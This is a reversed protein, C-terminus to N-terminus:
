SDAQRGILAPYDLSDDRKLPLCPFDRLLAAAAELLRGQPASEPGVLELGLSWGSFGAFALETVEILVPSRVKKGRLSAHSAAAPAMDYAKRHRKKLVVVRRGEGGQGAFARSLDTEEQGCAWSHREWQTEMGAVRGALASFPRREGRLKLQIRDKRFKLGVDDRGPILLYVDERVLVREAWDGDLAQAFWGTVAAPMAGSYFWRVESTRYPKAM